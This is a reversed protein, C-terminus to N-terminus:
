KYRALRNNSGFFFLLRKRNGLYKLTDHLAVVDVLSDLVWNM